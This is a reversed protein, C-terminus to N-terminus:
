KCLILKLNQKSTGYAFRAFFIGAPGDNRAAKWTVVGSPTSIPFTKIARGLLSYITISGSAGKLETPMSWALTVLGSKQSFGSFGFHGAIAPHNGSKIGTMPPFTFANSTATITEGYALFLALLLGASGLLAKRKM